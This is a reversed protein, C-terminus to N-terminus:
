GKNTFRANGLGTGITLVGWRRVDRMFPAQSLGQVVADNHLLVLTEGGEISPIAEKLVNPLNFSSDDWDGGPLNQGGRDIRGDPKITGPCGVGIFPALTLNEQRASAILKRLMEILRGVAQDRTPSVDAHRWVKSKWVSANSLDCRDHGPILVVGARINTGGIDVALLGERRASAWATTLHASGILGADDPHHRIPALRSDCGNANLITQTRAIALEGIRSERMGGGIAIRETHIWGQTRLFGFLVNALEQSFDELAALLLGAQDPRGEALLEDLKRKTLARAPTAGLPDEGVQRSRGRWESVINAFARKSARDGLFGDGSRMELNCSDVTVEPLDLGGHPGTVISSQVEAM